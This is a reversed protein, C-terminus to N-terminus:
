QCEAYLETIVASCKQGEEELCYMSGCVVWIVYAQCKTRFVLKWFDSSLSNKIYTELCVFNVSFQLFSTNCNQQPKNM